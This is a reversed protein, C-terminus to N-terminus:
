RLLVLRRSVQQDGARLRVLYIGAAATRGMSTRGDWTISHAGPLAPGRGLEAVRRGTVDFVAVEHDAGEHVSPIAFEIQVPYGSTPNPSMRTIALIRPTAPRAFLGESCFVELSGTCKTKKMLVNSISGYNGAEDVARVAFYYNTCASLSDIQMCESTSAPGPDPADNVEQFASFWNGETITSNSRRVDYHDATGATSDDGPASWTLVATTKGVSVVLDSIPSPPICDATVTISVSSSGDVEPQRPQDAIGVKFTASCAGGTQATWAVVTTPSGLTVTTPLGISAPDVEVDPDVDTRSVRLHAIRTTGLLSYTEPLVGLTL